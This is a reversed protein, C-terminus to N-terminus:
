IKRRGEIKQRGKSEEPAGKNEKQAERNKKAGGWKKQRGLRSSLNSIGLVPVAPPVMMLFIYM